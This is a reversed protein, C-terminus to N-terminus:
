EKVTVEVTLPPALEFSLTLPFELGPKLHGSLGFLMLHLGNPALKVPEGPPLALHDLKVMSMMGDKIKHGHVAIHTAMPSEIAVLTDAVSGRNTMTVYVAGVKAVPPLARAWMDQAEISAAQAFATSSAISVSVALVSACVARL